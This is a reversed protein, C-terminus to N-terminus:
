QRNLKLSPLTKGLTVHCLFLFWGSVNFATRRHGRYVEEKGLLKTGPWPPSPPMNDARFSKRLLFVASMQTGQRFSETSLSAALILPQAGENDRGLPRGEKGPLNTRAYELWSHIFLSAELGMSGLIKAYESEQAWPLSGSKTPRSHLKLNVNRVIGWTICISTTWLGCKSPCLKPEMFASFSDDLPKRLWIQSVPDTLFCVSHADQLPALFPVQPLLVPNGLSGWLFRTVLANNNQRWHWM